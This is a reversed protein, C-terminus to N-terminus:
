GGSAPRLASAASVRNAANADADRATVTEAVLRYGRRPVAVVDLGVPELRRRLRGATAQLRRVDATPDSWVKRLLTESGIVAGPRAALAHLLSAERPSLDIREGTRAIVISGQVLVVDQTGPAALWQQRAELATALERVLLGLRGVEPAIPESIGLDRAVGACVPGICAVLVPGNLARRLDADRGDDAAIAFLNRIAPASTFTVADLSGDCAAAVLRRAPGAEHPMGWRYVRVETVAAGAEALARVSPVDDDGHLQVAVRTGPSAHVLPVLDALREARRDVILGVSTAAADAKAGRALVRSRSLAAVLDDEMDWSQAAEFWARVGIATSLVIADPPDAIITATASRLAEDADLYSTAMAPGLLVAAGRRMLLEAQEGARRDATVGVTYGALPGPDREDLDM